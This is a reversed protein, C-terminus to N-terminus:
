FSQIQGFGKACALWSRSKKEDEGGNDKENGWSNIWDDGRKDRWRELDRESGRRQLGLAM